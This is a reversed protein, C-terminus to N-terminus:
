GRKIYDIDLYINQNSSINTVNEYSYAQELANLQNILTTDTIPTKVPTALPSYFILNKTGLLTKWGALKLTTNLLCVDFTLKSGTLNSAIGEASAGSYQSTTIGKLLNCYILNPRSSLEIGQVQSSYYVKLGNQPQSGSVIWDESGDLVVKGIAGYKYWNGNEKYIYDQYEGIKCLEINGLSIPYNQEQHPTYPTSTTGKVLWVLDDNNWNTNDNKRFGFYVTGDQSATFTASSVNIANIINLTNYGSYDFSSFSRVINNNKNFCITYTGQKLVLAFTRYREDSTNSLTPTASPEYIGQILDAIDVFNGNQVKVEVDGTINNVPSPFEPSPMAGYSEWVDTTNKVIRFDTLIVQETQGENARNGYMIVNCDLMEQTITKSTGQGWLLGSSSSQLYIMNNWESPTKTFYLYVIDGVKLNPCLTSLTVGTETYGNGVEVLPMTITKGNDTVVIGTSAPIESAKFYNTGSRTAQETNGYIKNITIKLDKITNELTIPLSQILLSIKKSSYMLWYKLYTPIKANKILYLYKKM